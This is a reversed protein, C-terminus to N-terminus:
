IRAHVSFPEVADNIYAKLQEKDMKHIGRCDKVEFVMDRWLVKGDTLGDECPHERIFTVNKIVSDLRTSWNCSNNYSVFAIGCTEHPIVVAVDNNGNQLVMGPKLEIGHLIM